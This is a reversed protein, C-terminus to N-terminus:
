AEGFAERHQEALYERPDDFEDETPTYWGRERAYAILDWGISECAHDCPHNAGEGTAEAHPSVALIMHARLADGDYWDSGDPARTTTMTIGFHEGAMRDLAYQPSNSRTFCEDGWGTTGPIRKPDDVPSRYARLEGSEFRPRLSEAFRALEALYASRFAEGISALADLGEGAPAAHTALTPFLPLAAAAGLSGLFGRRTAGENKRAM